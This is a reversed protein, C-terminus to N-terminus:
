FRISLGAMLLDTDIRAASWPHRRTRQAGLKLRVDETVRYGLVAEFRDVNDDWPRTVLASTTVDGFRMTEGRLALWAGQPLSYRSEVYGSKVDLNGSAITEWRRQVGEARLELPGRAYEADAMLTIERYDRLKTGPPLLFTWFAPMWTGDAGSVGLRLGTAPVIGIRGLVTQGTTNDEGPSPWSLSGQVVGASWEFPAWSGVMAAGTDWWRDDVIPLYVKAVDIQGLGAQAVQADVDPQITDWVLSTRYQYMLPTSMLANRDSYTRPGFTGVPWPIKGAELSIDRGAWPTWLAYAGDARIAGFGEHLITQVHLELSPSLRADLFLHLRYPDMDSDGFTLRNLERGEISSILGLDLLGRFRYAAAAHATPVLTLLALLATFLTRRLFPTPALM